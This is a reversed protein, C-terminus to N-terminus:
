MTVTKSAQGIAQFSPSPFGTGNHGHSSYSDLVRADTNEKPENPWSLFLYGHDRTPQVVLPDLLYSSPLLPSFLFLFLCTPLHLSSFHASSFSLSACQAPLSSACSHLGMLELRIKGGSYVSLSFSWFLFPKGWVHSCAM